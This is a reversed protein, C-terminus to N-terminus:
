EWTKYYKDCDDTKGCLHENGRYPICQEYGDGNICSYKYRELGNRHSFFSIIWEQSNSDRVLVRDFHKLTTIDFKDSVLEFKDQDEFRIICGKISTLYGREELDVNLIHVRERVGKKRIIVSGAKFRPEILKELTKTEANWKYGNDKIAKFLKQKEEETALRIIKIDPRHCLPLDCPLLRSTEQCSIAVYKYLDDSPTEKYIAIYEFCSKIFVIDGDKFQCPPVFGEWTTKGKPFIVCKANPHSTYCGDEYLMVVSRIGYLEYYCYILGDEIGDFYLSDWMTCDLEMGKPCDKLLEAINIKKEM